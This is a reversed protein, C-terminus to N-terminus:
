LLDQYNKLLVILEKQFMEFRKESEDINEQIKQMGGDSSEVAGFGLYMRKFIIWNKELLYKNNLVEDIFPHVPVLNNQFDIYYSGSNQAVFDIDDELVKNVKTKVSLLYRVSPIVRVHSGMYMQLTNKVLEAEKQYKEFITSTNIKSSECVEVKLQMAIDMFFMQLSFSIRDNKNNQYDHGYCQFGLVKAIEEEELKSSITEMSVFYRPFQAVSYDDITMKMGLEKIVPALLKEQENVTFKDSFDTTEWLWARRVGHKVLIMQVAATFLFKSHQQMAESLMQALRPEYGDNGGGSIKINWLM